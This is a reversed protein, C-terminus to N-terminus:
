KKTWQQVKLLSAEGRDQWPEKDDALIYLQEQISFHELWDEIPHLYFILKENSLLIPNLHAKKQKGSLSDYGYGIHLFKQHYPPDDEAGNNAGFASVIKKRISEM